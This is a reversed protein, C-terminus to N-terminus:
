LRTEDSETSPHRLHIAKHLAHVCSSVKRSRFGRCLCCGAEDVDKLHPRPFAWAGSLSIGLGVQGDDGWCSSKTPLRTTPAVGDAHSTTFAMPRAKGSSRPFDIWLASHSPCHSSSTAVAHMCDHARCTPQREVSHEVEELPFIERPIPYEERYGRRPAAPGQLM